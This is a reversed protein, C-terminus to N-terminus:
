EPANAALFTRVLTSVEPSFRVAGEVDSFFRFRKTGTPASAIPRASTAPAVPRARACTLLISELSVAANGIAASYEHLLPKLEALDIAHDYGESEAQSRAIWDTMFSEISQHLMQLEHSCEQFLAFMAKIDGRGFRIQQSM